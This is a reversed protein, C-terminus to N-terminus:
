SGVRVLWFYISGAFTWGDRALPGVLQVVYTGPKTPLTVSVTADPGIGQALVTGIDSPMGTSEGQLGQVESAPAVKVSWGDSLSADAVSFVYGAPAQIAVAEGVLATVPDLRLVDDFFFPGCQDGVDVETLYYVTRCGGEM